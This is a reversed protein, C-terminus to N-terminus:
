SAQVRGPAAAAHQRILVDLDFFAVPEGGISFLQTGAPLDAAPSALPVDAASARHLVVDRDIAIGVVTAHAGSGHRVLLYRGLSGEPAAGMGGSLDLLPVALGRWAALAVIHSPAGPVVCAALSQVVAVIRRGSIACRAAGCRPLASSSFVAVVGRAAGSSSMVAGPLPAVASTESRGGRPDLGSPSCVLGPEEERDILATFWRRSVSGALGPLALLAPAGDRHGHLIRDVQWGARGEGAGTVIVHTGADADAAPHLLAAMSYVPIPEPGRLTGVCAVGNRAAAVQETRAIFRVDRSDFAYSRGAVRCCV